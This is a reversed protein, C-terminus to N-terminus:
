SRKEGIGKGWFCAVLKFFDLSLSGRFRLKIRVSGIIKINTIQQIFLM